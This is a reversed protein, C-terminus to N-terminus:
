SKFLGKVLATLIKRIWWANETFQNTEYSQPRDGVDAMRCIIEALETNFHAKIYAAVCDHGNTIGASTWLEADRTKEGSLKASSVSDTRKSTIIDQSWRQDEFAKVGKFKGRLEPLLGRPGTVTKADCIGSYCIPYIGTCVSIIDAQGYEAHSKVFSQCAKSAVSKPDPGPIFLIDLQGPKFKAENLDSVILRLDATLPAIGIENAATGQPSGNHRATDGADESLKTPPTGHYTLVSAEAKDAIYFIEIKKVALKKIPPPLIQLEDLYQKSLMHFLDVPAMDLLQVPPPALIVGIRIHASASFTQPLM